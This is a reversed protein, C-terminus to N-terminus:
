KTKENLKKMANTKHEVSGGSKVISLAKQYVTSAEESTLFVGLHMLRNNFRIHAIFKGLKINHCVGKFPNSKLKRYQEHHTVYELNSLKNNNLDGNIHIVVLESEGVFTLMVLRNLQKTIRNINVTVQRKQHLIKILIPKKKTFSMVRGFDSVYYLPENPLQKWTENALAIQQCMELHNDM